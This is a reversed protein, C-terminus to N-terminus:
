LVLLIAISVTVPSQKYMIESGELTIRKNHYLIELKQEHEVLLQSYISTMFRRKALQRYKIYKTANIQRAETAYWAESQTVM